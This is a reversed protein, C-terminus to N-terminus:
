LETLETLHAPLQRALLEAARLLLMVRRSEELGEITARHPAMDDSITRSQECARAVRALTGDADGSLSRCANRLAGCELAAEAMQEYCSRVSGHLSREVHEADARIMTSTRVLKELPLRRILDSAGWSGDERAEPLPSSGAATPELAKKLGYYATLRANRPRRSVPEM